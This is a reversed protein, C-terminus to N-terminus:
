KVFVKRGNQIYVGHTPQAVRRGQLDYVPADSELTAKGDTGITIASGLSTAIDGFRFGRAQTNSSAFYARGKPLADATYRWFGIESNVMGLAFVTGDVSSTEVDEITGSLLGASASSAATVLAPTFTYTQPTLSVLVVGAGAPTNTGGDLRTLTMVEDATTATATCVAIEGEEDTEYTPVEVSFPVYFSAYSADGADRITSTLYSFDVEYLFWCGSIYGSYYNTGTADNQFAGTNYNYMLQGARGGSTSRGTTAFGLTGAKVSSASSLAFDSVYSVFYETANSAMNNLYQGTANVFAYKSDNQRCVFIAKNGSAAIAADVTTFDNISKVGNEQSIYRLNGDRGYNVFVYAKGTEPLQLTWTANALASGFAQADQDTIATQLSEALGEAAYYGVGTSANKVNNYAKTIVAFDIDEGDEFRMYSNPSGTNGANWAVVRSYGDFHLHSHTGTPSLSNIDWRDNGLHTITYKGAGSADETALTTNNDARTAMVFEGDNGIIYWANDSGGTPVFQFKQAANSGDNDAQALSGSSLSVSKSVLLGACQIRYQGAVFKPNNYITTIAEAFTAADSNTSATSLNTKIASVQDTTLVDYGVGAVNAEFSTQVATLTASLASWDADTIDEFTVSSNSAATTWAVVNNWDDFHLARHTSDSNAPNICSIYYSTEADDFAGIYYKSAKYVNTTLPTVRNDTTTPAVFSGNSAVIWWYGSTGVPLFQMLQTTSTEDYDTQVLGTGGSNVDMAKTTRTGACVVRSQFPKHKSLYYATNKVAYSVKFDYFAIGVNAGSQMLQFTELDLDSMSFVKATDAAAFTSDNFALSVNTGATLRKYKFSVASIYYNDNNLSVNIYSSYSGSSNNRNGTYIYLSDCESTTGFSARKIDNILTSGDAYQSTTLTMGDFSSSTWTNYFNGSTGASGAAYSVTVTGSTVNNKYAAAFAVKMAAYNATTVGATTFASYAEEIAALYDENSSKAKAAEYAYTAAESIGETIDLSANYTYADSTITAVSYKKYYINYGMGDFAINQEMLTGIEGSQLIALNSYCSNTNSLYFYGEWGSAMASPTSYDTYEDLFRYAIGVNTRGSGMPLSQLLLWGAKSDSARTAPVMLAEGNSGYGSTTSPVVGNTTSAGSTAQSGWAGEGAAVDTFSFVNFIRGANVRSSLLVSGDPLEEVKPEDGSSTVGPANPGGLINWNEGFDDTYLVFNMGPKFLVACYVRYYNGVKVYRSQVMRGSGIFMSVASYDGTFLGYIQSSMDVPTGWTAGNDDSYFRAMGQHNSATGSTYINSGSCSMLMVKGSERDSVVAADGYGDHLFGGDSYTNNAILNETSWTEGEDTSIRNVIDIHGGGIDFFTYRLDSIALLNGSNTLTLAPIRYRYNGGDGYSTMPSNFVNTTWDFDDIKELTVSMNSYMVGNNDGMVHIKYCDTTEDLNSTYTQEASTVTLTDTADQPLLQISASSNLLKYTFSFSKVKYGMASIGIYSGGAGTWICFADDTCNTRQIHYIKGSTAYSNLGESVTVALGVRPENSRSGYSTWGMPWQSNRWDTSYQGNSPTLAVTVEEARAEGGATIAPAVAWGVLALLALLLCSRFQHNQTM